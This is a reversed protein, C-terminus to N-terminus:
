WLPDTSYKAGQGLLTLLSSLGLTLNLIRGVGFQSFVLSKM